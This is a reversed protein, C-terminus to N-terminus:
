VARLKPLLSGSLASRKMLLRLDKDTIAWQFIDPIDIWARGYDGNTENRHAFIFDYLEGRRTPVVEKYSNLALNTLRFTKESAIYQQNFIVFCDAVASYAKLIEDWDPSVQHLLVDFMLVVDVHHIKRQVTSSGFNDKIPTLSAYQSARKNVRPNFHTDVLFARDIQFNKLIYFTYAADVHWVAGLDAFSKASPYCVRFTQDILRLKDMDVYINFGRAINPLNRIGKKIRKFLHPANYRM